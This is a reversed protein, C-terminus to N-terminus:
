NCGVRVMVTNQQLMFRFVPRSAEVSGDTPSPLMEIVWSDLPSSKSQTAALGQYRRLATSAAIPEMSCGSDDRLCRCKCVEAVSKVEFDAQLKNLLFAPSIWM